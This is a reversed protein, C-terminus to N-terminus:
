IGRGEVEVELRKIAEHADDLQPNIAVAQRYATLAADKRDLDDMMVALGMLAAWHRPERVLVQSIDSIAAEYDDIVYYLTARKNWGEPYDPALEVAMSFLDLAVAYDQSRLAETGRAVMLDVTASGSQLWLRWIENEILDAEAPSEAEALKDFLGDLDSTGQAHASGAALLPVLMAVAPLLRLPAFLRTLWLAM